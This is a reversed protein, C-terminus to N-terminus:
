ERQESEDKPTTTKKVARKVKVPAARTSCRTGGSSGGQDTARTPKEAPTGAKSGTPKPREPGDGQAARVRFPVIAFDVGCKRCKTADHPFRPGSCASCFHPLESPSASSAQPKERMPPTGMHFHEANGHTRGDGLRDDTDNECGPLHRHPGEHGQAM